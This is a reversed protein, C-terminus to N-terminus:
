YATHSFMFRRCLVGSFDATTQIIDFRVASPSKPFVTHFFPFGMGSGPRFGPFFPTLFWFGQPFSPPFHPCTWRASHTTDCIGDVPHLWLPPNVAYFTLGAVFFGTLLYFFLNRNRHFTWVAAFCPIALWGTFKSAMTLGLFVGFPIARWPSKPSEDETFFVWSLIWCSTLISDNVAFHAHCYLRPILIMSVAALVAPAPSTPYLRLLKEFVAAIALAYCFLFLTRWNVGPVFRGVVDGAAALFGYFAPHGESYSIYPLTGATPKAETRADKVGLWIEIQEARWFSDGEDWCMPVMKSTANLLVFAIIFIVISSAIRSM